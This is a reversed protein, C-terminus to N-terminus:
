ARPPPSPPAMMAEEMVDMEATLEAIQSRLDARHVDLAAKRANLAVLEANLEEMVTALGDQLKDGDGDEEYAAVLVRMRQKIDENPVQEIGEKVLEIDLTTPAM